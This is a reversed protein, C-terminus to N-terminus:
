FPLSIRQWASRRIPHSPTFPILCAVSELKAILETIRNNSANSKMKLLTNDRLVMIIRGDSKSYGCVKSCLVASLTYACLWFGRASAISRIRVSDGFGVSLSDCAIFEFSVFASATWLRVLPPLEGSFNWPALHSQSSIEVCGEDVLDKYRGPVALVRLIGTILRSRRYREEPYRAARSAAFIQWDFSSTSPPSALLRFKKQSSNTSEMRM